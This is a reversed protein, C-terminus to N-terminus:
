PVRRFDSEAWAKAEDFSPAVFLPQTDKGRKKYVHWSEDNEQELVYELDFAAQWSYVPLPGYREIWEMKIDVGAIVPVVVAKNL